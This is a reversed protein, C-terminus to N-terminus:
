VRLSILHLTPKEVINVIKGKVRVIDEDGIQAGPVAPENNILVEGNEILIDAERRSCVGCESLYKNIRM